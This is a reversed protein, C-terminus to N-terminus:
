VQRSTRIAKNCELCARFKFDSLGYVNRGLGKDINENKFQRADSVVHYVLSKSHKLTACYHSKMFKWKLFLSSNIRRRLLYRQTSEIFKLTITVQIPMSIEM